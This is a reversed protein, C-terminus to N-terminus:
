DKFYKQIQNKQCDIGTAYSSNGILKLLEKKDIEKAKLYSSIAIIKNTADEIALDYLDEFSQTSEKNTVPNHWPQHKQNLYSTESKNIHFSLNAYKRHSNKNIIDKLKYIKKKIGSKDTVFYKLIFNGTHTSKEYIPGMNSFSFTKKFVTTIINKLENSFSIKPLLQNALKADKLAKKEYKQYIYADINTEIKEHQGRYKMNITVDGSQYIILPHTISDLSYHCISGYLYALIDQNNELNNEEITNLINEFYKNVNTKQALTGLERIKKGKWPTFFKYYFLNDFSQAFIYYYEECINNKVKEPLNNLVQKAFYHHTVISPM